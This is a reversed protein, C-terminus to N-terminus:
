GPTNLYATVKTIVATHAVARVDSGPASIHIQVGVNEEISITATM